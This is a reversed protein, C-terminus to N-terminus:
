PLKKAIILCEEIEKKEFQPKLDKVTSKVKDESIKQKEALTLVYHLSAILELKDSSNIMEGLISKLLEIKRKNTTSDSFNSSSGQKEGFVVRTLNPSYPGYIYWTFPFDLDIGVVQSLYVLKQLKKRDSLVDLKPESGLMKFLLNIESRTAMIM